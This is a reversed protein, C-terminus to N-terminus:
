NEEEAEETEQNLLDRTASPPLIETFHLIRTAAIDSDEDSSEFGTVIVKEGIELSSFGSKEIEEADSYVNTKTSTEVDVIYENNDKTVVTLTFNRSDKEKIAADISLPISVKQSIFRALMKETEKNYLGIVSIHSGPEIDSIGFDEDDDESEFKTLEDIEIIKQENFENVIVIETTSTEKVTGIFGKKDVLNLEAVKSAVAEKIKQITDVEEPTPSTDEDETQAFSLHTNFMSTVIVLTLLITLIKKTM